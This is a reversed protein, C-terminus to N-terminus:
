KLSLNNIESLVKNINLLRKTVWEIQFAHNVLVIDNMQDMNVRPKYHHM